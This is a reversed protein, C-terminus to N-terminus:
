GTRAVKHPGITPGSTAIMEKTQETPFMGRAATSHFPPMLDAAHKSEDQGIRYTRASQEAVTDTKFDAM